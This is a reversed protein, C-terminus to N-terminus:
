CFFDLIQTQLMNYNTFGMFLATFVPVIIFITFLIFFPAFFVIAYGNKHWMRALKKHSAQTIGYIKKSKNVEPIRNM